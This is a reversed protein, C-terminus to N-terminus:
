FIRRELSKLRVIIRRIEEDNYCNIMEFFKEKGDIKEFIVFISNKYEEM